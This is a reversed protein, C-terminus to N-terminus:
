KKSKSANPIVVYIIDLQQCQSFTTYMAEHPIQNGERPCLLVQVNHPAIFNWERCLKGCCRQGLKSCVVTGCLEILLLNIEVQKNYLSHLRCHLNWNSKFHSPANILCLSVSLRNQNAPIGPSTLLLTFQLALLSNLDYASPLTELAPGNDIINALAISLNQKWFLSRNWSFKFALFVKM